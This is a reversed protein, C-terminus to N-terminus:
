MYNLILFAILLKHSYLQYIAVSKSVQAFDKSAKAMYVSFVDMHQFTTCFFIRM